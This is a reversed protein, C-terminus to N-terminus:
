DRRYRAPPVTVGHGALREHEEVVFGILDHEVLAFGRTEVLHGVTQLRRRHRRTLLAPTAHQRAQSEDVYEVIGRWM